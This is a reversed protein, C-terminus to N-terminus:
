GYRSSASILSLFFIKTLIKLVDQIRMCYKWIVVPKEKGGDANVIFAVYALGKSAKREEKALDVKKFLVMNPCHKWFVGTEDLNWIDRKANGQLIEPFREKWSDVTAGSVDGSEGSVIL